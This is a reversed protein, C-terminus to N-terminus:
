RRQQLRRRSHVCLYGKTDYTYAESVTGTTAVNVKTGHFSEGTRNGSLDYSIAQPHSAVGDLRAGAGKDDIQARIVVVV